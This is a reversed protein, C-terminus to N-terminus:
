PTPLQFRLFEEYKMTRIGQQVDQMYKPFHLLYLALKRTLLKYKNRFNEPVFEEIVDRNLQWSQKVLDMYYKQTLGDKLHYVPYIGLQEKLPIENMQMAIVKQRGEYKGFITVNCGIPMSKLWPRNFMSIEYVDYDTVVSFRTVSRNKQYRVTKFSSAIKGEFVVKDDKQWLEFPKTEVVEYRFPYNMLIDMGDYIDMSNLLEKKKPTLRPTQIM